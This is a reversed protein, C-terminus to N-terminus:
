FQFYIFEQPSHFMGFNVLLLVVAYFFAWRQWRPRAALVLRLDIHSTAEVVLLIAILVAAVLLDPEGVSGASLRVRKLWWPSFIKGLITTAQAVSEARFFVWALVVAHFTVIISAARAL